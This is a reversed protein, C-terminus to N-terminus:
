SVANKREKRLLYYKHDSLQRKAWLEPNQRIKKYRNIEQIRHSAKRESTQSRAKEYAKRDECCSVGYRSYDRPHHLKLHDFNTKTM